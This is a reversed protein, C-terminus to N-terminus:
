ESMIKVRKGPKVWMTAFCLVANLEREGLRIVLLKKELVLAMFVLKFNILPHSFCMLV